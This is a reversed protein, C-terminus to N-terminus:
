NCVSLSSFVRHDILLPSLLARPMVLVSVCSVLGRGHQLYEGVKPSQEMDGLDIIVAPDKPVTECTMM